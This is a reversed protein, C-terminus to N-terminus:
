ISVSENHWLIRINMEVSMATGYTKFQSILSYQELEILIQILKAIITFTNGVFSKLMTQTIALRLMNKKKQKDTNIEISYM